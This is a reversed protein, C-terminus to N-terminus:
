HVSRSGDVVLGDAWVELRDLLMRREFNNDFFQRGRAGMAARESAPMRALELAALALASDDEAPVALGAGSEKLVRAGEGDIAALVPRACALYSQLKAPITMAFVPDSRLTLLLVDARAFWLPMAEPPHRGMLHVCHGLGRQVVERALWSSLRGEGVVIWHINAHCRLREAAALLTELSQAAGISGAFLICFGDPMAPGGPSSSRDLPRYFGEASNPLYHIHKPAVGQRCIPEVFAESQVLVRDCGRYIWRVLSAMLALLRPSRVAGTATLTEPWLDQVWFMMPAKKLCKMVRAPIGVTVPSPEFVFILDYHGRCLLPGLISASLAFSLYNIALRLGGGGGRPILPVRWVRVRGVSEVHRGFLGYGPYVRGEPYNPWGTLVTVEHGRESLGHVLDNIRFSEPWFYQTVVLVRM